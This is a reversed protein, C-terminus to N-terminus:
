HRYSDGLFVRWKKASFGSIRGAAWLLFADMGFSVLFVVDIYITPEM